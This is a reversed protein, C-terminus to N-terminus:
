KKLLEKIRAICRETYAKMEDKSFKKSIFAPVNVKFDCESYLRCWSMDNGKSDKVLTVVHGSYIIDGRVVNKVPPYETHEISRSTDCYFVQGDKVFKDWHKLYIFDRASSIITKKYSLFIVNTKETFPEAIYYKDLLLDMKTQEEINSMFGLFFEPHCPVFFETRFINVKNKEATTYNTCYIKMKHEMTKEEYIMEYKKLPATNLEYINALLESLFAPKFYFKLNPISPSRIKPTEEKIIVPNIQSLDPLNDRSMPNDLSTDGDKKPIQEFNVKLSFKEILFQNLFLSKRFKLTKKKGKSHIIPFDKDDKQFYKVTNAKSFNSGKSRKTGVSPTIDERNLKSASMSRHVKIDASPKENPIFPSNYQSVKLNKKTELVLSNKLAKVQTEPPASNNKARGVCENREQLDIRPEPNNILKPVMQPLTISGENEVVNDPNPNSLTSPSQQPKKPLKTQHCSACKSGM